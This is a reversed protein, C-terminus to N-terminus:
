LIPIGIYNRTYEIDYEIRYPNIFSTEMFIIYKM